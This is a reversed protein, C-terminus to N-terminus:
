TGSLAVRLPEFHAVPALAVVFLLIITPARKTMFPNKGAARKNPPYYGGCAIEAIDPCKLAIQVPKIPMTGGRTISTDTREAAEVRAAKSSTM